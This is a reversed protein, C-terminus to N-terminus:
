IKIPQKPIRKDTTKKRKIKAEQPEAEVSEGLQIRAERLAEAVKKAELDAIKDKDILISTDIDRIIKHQLIDIASPRKGEASM